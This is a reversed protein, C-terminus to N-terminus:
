EAFALQLDEMDLIESGSDDLMQSLDDLIGEVEDRYAGCVRDIMSDSAHQLVYDLCGTIVALEDESVELTLLRVTAEQKESIQKAM